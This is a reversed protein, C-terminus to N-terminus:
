CIMYIKNVVWLHQECYFPIFLLCRYTKVPEMQNTVIDSYFSTQGFSIIWLEANVIKNCPYWALTPWWLPPGETLKWGHNGPHSGGIIWGKCFTFRNEFIMEVNIESWLKWRKITWFIHMRSCTHKQSITGIESEWDQSFVRTWSKSAACKGRGQITIPKSPM